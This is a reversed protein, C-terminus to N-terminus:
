TVSLSEEDTFLSSKNKRVKPLDLLMALSMFFLGIPVIVYAPGLPIFDISSLTTHMELTRLAMKFTAFVMLFGYAVSFVQVIYNTVLKAKGRLRGTLITVRIYAGYRYGYSLSLFIATVMLYNTSIEYAGTIPQNFFYRGGADATTLLMLIFTAFASVYIMVSECLGLLKRM